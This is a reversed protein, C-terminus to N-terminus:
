RAAFEEFAADFDDMSAPRKATSRGGISESNSLQQKRKARLSSDPRSSQMSQSFSSLLYSADVAENSSMLSQVAHPQVKLWQSFEPSNITQIYDPFETTLAREQASIYQNEAQQQIPSIQGKLAEIEAKHAEAIANFRADVGAALEPFEEKLEDWEKNAMGEPKKGANSSQLQEIVKNQKELKEQLARQRGLDSKYRHEWNTNQQQYKELDSLEKQTSENDAALSENNDSTNDQDSSAFRGQDDRLREEPEEIADGSAMSEAINDFAADFELDEQVEERDIEM